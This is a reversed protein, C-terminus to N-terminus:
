FAGDRTFVAKVTKLLIVFDGTLSWNEVYYLDYRVSEEWSLASRGNVQWLGTIGPKILLRRNVHSEYSDVERELPPRPGILSMDGLIVNWLQPLEDLSYKRLIRGVGTVRPDAKIKFLVGNGEDQERLGDLRSEADIVMSRFKFMTFRKGHAGVRQQRFIVSGPSSVKVMVSITVLLPALVVLAAAASLVDFVRKATHNVGTYQPLDVHVMPLGGVPRLHIRPGAVDTLRSMLILEAKSNELDWSLERIQDNGRPLEGAVMVATTGTLRIAGVLQDIDVRPLADAASDGAFSDDVICVAVPRYGVDARHTLQALTREVDRRTGVVIAGTKAVGSRRWETLRRRWFLRGALLLVLGVPFAIAVYGRAIDIQFVYALVALSGFTMLTANLVRQYEIVGVGINRMGRSRTASLAILWGVAIIVGWVTYQVESMPPTMAGGEPGFRAFQAALLAAAIMATDTIQISWVIRRRWGVREAIRDIQEAIDDISARVRPQM